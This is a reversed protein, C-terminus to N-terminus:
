PYSKVYMTLKLKLLFVKVKRLFYFIHNLISNGPLVGSLLYKLCFPLVFLLRSFKGNVPWTQKSLPYITVAIAKQPRYLINYIYLM